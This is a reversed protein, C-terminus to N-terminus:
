SELLRTLQKGRAEDGYDMGTNALDDALERVSEIKRYMAQILELKQSETMKWARGVSDALDGRTKTKM